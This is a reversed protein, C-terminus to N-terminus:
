YNSPSGIPFAPNDLYIINKGGLEARDLHRQQHEQFLQDYEGSEIMRELGSKIASHLEINSKNVFFYFVFPYQISLHSDVIIGQDKYREYEGWVEIVSRPFYDVRGKVLMQFMAEYNYNATINMENHRYIDVEPWSGGQVARFARLDDITQVKDFQDKNREHILLVRKGIAGKYIPIRIPLLLHEREISTGTWLVDVMRQAALQKVARGQQMTVTAPKLEYSDGLAAKLLQLPYDVRADSSSEPKPYIAVTAAYSYVSIWLTFCLASSNAMWM